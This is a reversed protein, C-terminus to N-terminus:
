CGTLKPTLIRQYQELSVRVTERNQELGRTLRLMKLLLVSPNKPMWQRNLLANRVHQIGDRLIVANV